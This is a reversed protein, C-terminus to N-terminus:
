LLLSVLKCLSLRKGFVKGLFLSKVLNFQTDSADPLTYSVPSYHDLQSPSLSLCLMSKCM